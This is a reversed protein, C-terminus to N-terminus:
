RDLPKCLSGDVLNHTHRVCPTAAPLDAVSLAAGSKRALNAGGAAAGPRGPPNACGALILAGIMLLNVAPVVKMELGEKM